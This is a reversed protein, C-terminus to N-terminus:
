GGEASKTTTTTRHPAAEIKDGESTHPYRTAPGQEPKFKLKKHCQTFLDAFSTQM